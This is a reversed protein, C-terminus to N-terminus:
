DIMRVNGDVYERKGAHIVYGNLFLQTPKPTYPPRNSYLVISDDAASFIAYETIPEGEALGEQCFSDETFPIDNIFGKIQHYNIYSLHRKLVVDVIVIHVSTEEEGPANVYGIWNTNKLAVCPYNAFVNQSFVVIIISLISFINKKFLKYM